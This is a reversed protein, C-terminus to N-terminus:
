DGRQRDPVLNRRIYAHLPRTDTAAERINDFKTVVQELNEAHHELADARDLFSARTVSTMMRDAACRLEAARRRWDTARDIFGTM